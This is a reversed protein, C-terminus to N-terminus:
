DLDFPPSLSCLRVECATGRKRRTKVKSEIKEVLQKEEMRKAPPESSSLDSMEANKQQKFSIQLPSPATDSPRDLRSPSESSMGSLFEDPCM